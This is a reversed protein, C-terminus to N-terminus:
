EYLTVGDDKREVRLKDCTCFMPHYGEMDRRYVIQSHIGTVSVTTMYGVGNVCRLETSYVTESGLFENAIGCTEIASATGFILMLALVYKRM